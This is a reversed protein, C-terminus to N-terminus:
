SLISDSEGDESITDWSTHKWHGNRNRGESRKEELTGLGLVVCPRFSSERYGHEETTQTPSRSEM